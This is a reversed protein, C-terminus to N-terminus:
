SSRGQQSGIATPQQFWDSLLRPLTWTLFSPMFHGQLYDPPLSPNPSNKPVESMTAAGEFPTLQNPEGVSSLCFMVVAPSVPPLFPLPVSSTSPFRSWWKFLLLVSFAGGVSIVNKVGFCNFNPLLPLLVSFPFPHHPCVPWLPCKTKTATRLSSGSTFAGRHGDWRSNSELQLNELGWFFNINQTNM